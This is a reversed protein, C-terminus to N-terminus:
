YFYKDNMMMTVSTSDPKSNAWVVTIPSGDGKAWMWQMGGISSEGKRAKSVDYNADIRKEVEAYSISSSIVVQGFLSSTPGFSCVLTDTSGEWVSQGVIRITGTTEVFEHTIGKATLTSDFQNKTLGFPIGLIGTPRGDSLVTQSKVEGPKESTEVKFSQQKSTENKAKNSCAVILMGSVLVLFLFRTFQSM